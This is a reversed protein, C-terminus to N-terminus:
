YIGRLLSDVYAEEAVKKFVPDKIKMRLTQEKGSWPINPNSIVSKLFEQESEPITSLIKAVTEPRLLISRNKLLAKKEWIPLAKILNLPIPWYWWVRTQSSNAYDLFLQVCRKLQEVNMWWFMETSNVYIRDIDRQIQLTDVTGDPKLAKGIIQTIYDLRQKPEWFRLILNVDVQGTRIQDSLWNAGLERPLSKNQSLIKRELETGTWIKTRMVSLPIRPNFLLNTRVHEDSDKLLVQIQEQSLKESRAVAIRVSVESHSVLTQIQSNSLNPNRAIRALDEPRWRQFCLDIRKLNTENSLTKPNMNSYEWFVSDAFEQFWGKWERFFLVRPFSIANFM